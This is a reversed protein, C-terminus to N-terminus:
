GAVCDGRGLDEDESIAAELVDNTGVEQGRLSGHVKWRNGKELAARDLDRSSFWRFRVKCYQVAYIQEGAAVLRRRTGDDRQGHIDLGPNALDGIM